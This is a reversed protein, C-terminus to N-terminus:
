ANQAEVEANILDSFESKQEETMVGYIAPIGFATVMSQWVDRASLNNFMRRLNMEGPAECLLDFSAVGDTSASNPPSAPIISPSRTAKRKPKHVPHKRGKSDVTTKVNPIESRAEMERRVSATTKDDVGITKAIALNSWTPNAKLVDEIRERKQKSTLPQTRARRHQNLAAVYARMEEETSCEETIDRYYLPRGEERCVEARHRGDVIQDRWIVIPVLLGHERVSRRLADLEEKTFDAYDATVHNLPYEIPATASALTVDIAGITNPRDAEAVAAGEQMLETM